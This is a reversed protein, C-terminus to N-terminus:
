RDRGKPRKGERGDSIDLGEDDRILNSEQAAASTVGSVVDEEQHLTNNNLRQELDDFLDNIDQDTDQVTASTVGSVVDGGHSGGVEDSINKIGRDDSLKNEEKRIGRDIEGESYILDRLGRDDSLKNEEKRIGRDIEGESYILDRLGRDDSLKNEEKRADRDIEGESYILDRLGRDDSLKNEEKRIGRDIEERQDRSGEDHSTDDQDSSGEDDRILNSEQAAARTVGSVVDEEQHLTNNNLRQELDDFLDNIDQDTDQVTASTVGSVVDEEGHLRGGVEDREVVQQIEDRIDHYNIDGNDNDSEYERIVQDFDDGLKDRLAAELKDIDSQIRNRADLDTASNLMKKLESLGKCADKVNSDNLSINGHEDVFNNVGEDRERKSSSKENDPSSKENDLSSEENDPKKEPIYPSPQYRPAGMTITKLNDLFAKRDEIINYKLSGERYGVLKEVTHVGLYRMAQLPSLGIHAGIFARMYNIRSPEFKLRSESTLFEGVNKTTKVAKGVLDIANSAADGVGLKEMIPIRNITGRLGYKIMFPIKSFTESIQGTIKMRAMIRFQDIGQDIKGIVTGIVPIGSFIKVFGGDYMGAITQSMMSGGSLSVALSQVFARMQWILFSVILLGFIESWVLLYGSQINKIINYDYQKDLEEQPTPAIANSGIINSILYDILINKDIKGSNKQSILMASFKDKSDSSIAKKSVLNTLENEISALLRAISYNSTAVVLSNILQSLGAFISNEGVIVGGAVGKSETDPNFFPYDIYRFDTTKYDPPVRIVSGGGTFIYRSGSSFNYHQEEDKSVSTQSSESSRPFGIIYKDYKQGPTWTFYHNDFICKGEKGFCIRFVLWENYCATFGFIRYYYNMILAGFMAILTFMLISQLAFSICQTLWGDFLSKLQSFLIGIFLIPMLGVLFTIGVFATMYIVFAYMCLFIYFIVSIIIIIVFFISVFNALILARVKVTWVVESFIKDRIMEDIFAFPADERYSVSYSNIIAIIEDVGKLFFALLHNYFFDWSNPSILLIVLSVKLIRVILDPFPSQVMGFIYALASFVLFLTLVSFVLNKFVKNNIIRKFIQEGAKDLQLRVNKRIGEFISWVKAKKVGSIFNIEYGGANDHYYTDMIKAYIKWGKELKIKNCQSDLIGKDDSSYSGVGGVDSAQYGIHIIPSIPYQMIALNENPDPDYDRKLLLFAGYGDKFWCPAGYTASLKDTKKIDFTECTITCSGGFLKKEISYYPGCIRDIPTITNYIPDDKNIESMGIATNQIPTFKKNDKEWATWMGSTKLVITKGDTVFGTDQWRVVQERNARSIKKSSYGNNAKFNIDDNPSYYASVTLSQDSFNDAAVCRRATAENTSCSPLILCLLILNLVIFKFNINLTSIM